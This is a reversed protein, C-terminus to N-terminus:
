FGDKQEKLRNSKLASLGYKINIDLQESPSFGVSREYLKSYITFAKEWDSDQVYIEGVAKMAHLDNPNQALKKLGAALLAQKSKAKRGGQHTVKSILALLGIFILVIFSVALFISVMDM